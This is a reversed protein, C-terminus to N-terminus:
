LREDVLKTGTHWVIRDVGADLMLGYCMLCPASNLNEHDRASYVTTGSARDKLRILARMEAHISKKLHHDSTPHTVDRNTAVALLRAGSAIVAGHRHACTSDEAVKMALAMHREDRATIM